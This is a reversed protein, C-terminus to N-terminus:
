EDGQDSVDQGHLIIVPEEWDSANHRICVRSEQLDPDTKHMRSGLDDPDLRLWLSRVLLCRRINSRIISLSYAEIEQFDDRHEVLEQFADPIWVVEAGTIDVVRPFWVEEIEGGSDQLAHSPGTTLVLAACALLLKM